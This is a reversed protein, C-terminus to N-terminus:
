CISGEDTWLINRWKMDGKSGMWSIHSKVFELRSRLHHPRLSPMRRAIRESLNVGQLRRQITKSSVENNVEGATQRSSM